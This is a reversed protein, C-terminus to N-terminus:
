RVPAKSDQARDSGITMGLLLTGLMACCSAISLWVAPMAKNGTLHILYQSIAPTFGGFVATALSYALAFGAARVNAPMIEALHGIMAGNYGSYLFSLWLEAILLRTFSPAAALWAMTPYATIAGVIAFGIMLPRRGAVDSVAGWTPIWLLNSLGVCL